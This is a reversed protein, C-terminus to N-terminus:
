GYFALDKSWSKAKVMDPAVEPPLTSRVPDPGRIKRRAANARRARACGTSHMLCLWADGGWLPVVMNFVKVAITRVAKTAPRRVRCAPLGTKVPVERGLRSRFKEMSCQGGEGVSPRGM